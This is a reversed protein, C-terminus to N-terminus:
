DVASIGIIILPMSVVVRLKRLDNLVLYKGLRVLRNYAQNTKKDGNTSSVELQRDLVTSYPTIKAARNNNYQYHIATGTMFLLAAIIPLLGRRNLIRGHHVNEEEVKM